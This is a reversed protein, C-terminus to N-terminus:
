RVARRGDFYKSDNRETFVFHNSSSCSFRLCHVYKVNKAGRSLIRKVEPTPFLIHKIAFYIYPLHARPRAAAAYSLSLMISATTKAMYHSLVRLEM